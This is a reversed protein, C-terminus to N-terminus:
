IKGGKVFYKRRFNRANTDDETPSQGEEEVNGRSGPGFGRPTSVSQERSGDDGDGIGGAIGTGEGNNEERREIKTVMISSKEDTGGGLGSQERDLQAAGAALRAAINPVRSKAFFYNDNFTEEQEDVSESDSDLLTRARPSPPQSASERVKILQQAVTVDARRKFKVVDARHTIVKDIVPNNLLRQILLVKDEQRLRSYRENKAKISRLVDSRGSSDVVEVVAKTNIKPLSARERVPLRSSLRGPDESTNSAKFTNFADWFIFLLEDFGMPLDADLQVKLLGQYFQKIKSIKNTLTYIQKEQSMIKNKVISVVVEVIEDLKDQNLFPTRKKLIQELHNQFFNLQVSDQQYQSEVTKKIYPSEIIKTYSSERAKM